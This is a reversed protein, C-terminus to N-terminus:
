QLATAILEQDDCTSSTGDSLALDKPQDTISTRESLLRLLKGVQTLSNHREAIRVAGARGMRELEAPDATLAQAMVDALLEVAGAPVLWGNVGPEILEPHAAIYTTIVPRGLALSEFFVGPLGEAFSPLVLARAAVLEELVHQDSLYGTFRVRTRLGFQDVQKQIEARMPGDGVIVLEFDYGREQLLAAAQILIMQGKQEVIRGINILRPRAPVPVPGRELYLPSVGVHVVHIKSWDHYDVWRYLQSRTFESIAAVFKARRIKEDLALLTPRDFESPGHITLSYPIGSLISALMAVLASNEGIHNHLHHVGRVELRGALYSAELLYAVRRIWRQAIGLPVSRRVVQVAELFLGPRTIAMKLAALALTGIGAELLYETQAQERRVDDSVVEDTGARRISFTYVVHGLRRLQEIERRIFTDGARAYVSTLYAIPTTDHM